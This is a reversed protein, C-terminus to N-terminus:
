NFHITDYVPDNELRPGRFFDQVNVSIPLTTFLVRTLFLKRELSPQEKTTWEVEINIKQENRVLDAGLM